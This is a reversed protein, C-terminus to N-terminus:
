VFQEETPTNEKIDLYELRDVCHFCVVDSLVLVLVLMFLYVLVGCNRLCM